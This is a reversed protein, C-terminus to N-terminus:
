PTERLYSRTNLPNHIAPDCHGGITTYVAIVRAPMATAAAVTAAIV